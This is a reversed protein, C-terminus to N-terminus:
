TRLSDEDKLAASTGVGRLSDVLHAVPTAGGPPPPPPHTECWYAFALLHVAILLMLARGPGHWLGHPPSLHDQGVEAAAGGHRHEAQAWYPRRKLVGRGDKGKLRKGRRRHTM